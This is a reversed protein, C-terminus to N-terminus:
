VGTGLRKKRGSDRMRKKKQKKKSSPHHPQKHTIRPNLETYHLAPLLFAPHKKRPHKLPFKPNLRQQFDPTQHSHAAPPTTSITSPTPQYLYIYLQISSCQQTEQIEKTPIEQQKRNKKGRFTTLLGLAHLTWFCFSMQTDTHGNRLLATADM